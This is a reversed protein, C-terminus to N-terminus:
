PCVPLSIIFKSGVDVQSEVRISGGNREIFEKCLLLGLGTGKEKNTGTTSYHTDIKFLSSLGEEPIGVGNDQVIIAVKGNGNYESWVRIWGNDNTFKIANSLLNRLVTGMMNMDTRVQVSPEVLNQIAIGKAKAQGRVFLLSEDISKRLEVCEPKAVLRGSQSRAWELLNQLLDYANSASENLKKVYLMKREDDIDKWRDILLTTFGLIVNFPNRLDHAIVSYLKDKTANLLRLQENKGRLENSKALLEENQQKIYKNQVTLMRNSSRSRRYHIVLLAGMVAILVLAGIAIVLVRRQLAILRERANDEIRQIELQKDFNYQLELETIRKTKEINSISDSVAHYLEFYKLSEDYNGLEKHIRSLEFSVQQVLQRLRNRQADNLAIKYQNIAKNPLGQARYLNARSFNLYNLYYKSGAQNFFEEATTFCTEAKAYEGRKIYIDGLNLFIEAINSTARIDQAIELAMLGYKLALEISDIESYTCSINMLNLCYARWYNYKRNLELSKFFYDLARARDKQALYIIALNNYDVPLDHQYNNRENIRLSQLYNEFSRTYDGGYYYITGLLTYASAMHRASDIENFARLSANAHVLARHIDKESYYYGLLQYVQGLTFQDNLQGALQIAKKAYQQFVASDSHFSVKSILYSLRIRDRDNTASNYVTILSDFRCGQAYVGNFTVISFLFLSAWKSLFVRRM